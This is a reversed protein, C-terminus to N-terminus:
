EVHLFGEYSAMFGFVPFAAEVEFRYRGDADVSERAKTGRLLSKPMPFFGFVRMAVPEWVIGTEDAHLRFRMEAPGIRECLLGDHAWLRSAFPARPFHRTWREGGGHPEITVAMTAHGEHQPFGAAVAALKALPNRAARMDAEGEFRHPLPMEHLARIPAPTRDLAEGLLQRFLAAM